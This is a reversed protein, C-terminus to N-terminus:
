DSSSFLVRIQNFRGEQTERFQSNACSHLECLWVLVSIALKVTLTTAAPLHELESGSIAPPTVCIKSSGLPM